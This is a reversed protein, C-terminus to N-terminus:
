DTKSEEKIQSNEDPKKQDGEDEKVGDLKWQSVFQAGSDGEKSEEVDDSPKDLLGGSTVQAAM